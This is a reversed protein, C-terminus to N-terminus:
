GGVTTDLSALKCITISTGEIWCNQFQSGFTGRMSNSAVDDLHEKKHVNACWCKDGTGGRM